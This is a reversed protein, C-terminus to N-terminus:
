GRRRALVRLYGSTQVTETYDTYLATASLGKVHIQNRDWKLAMSRTEVIAGTLAATIAGTLEVFPNPSTVGGTALAQAISGSPSGSITGSSPTLTGIAAVVLALSNSISVGLSSSLQSLSIEEVPQSGDQAQSVQVLVDIKDTGLWHNYVQESSQLGSATVARWEGLFDNGYARPRTATVTSTGDYDAEGIVLSNAPVVGTSIVFGLTVALPDSITYFIAAQDGVPFNGVIQLQFDSFTAPAIAGILYNGEDSSGLLALVDGVEVDQTTFNETSDTFITMNGLTDVSTAGYATGTSDNVTIVGSPQRTAYVYYTGAAGSINLTKTTRIRSLYGGIQMLLPQSSGNITVQAGTSGIYTPYGNSNALGSMLQNPFGFRMAAQGAALSASAGRAAWLELGINDLQQKLTYPTPSDAPNVYGYLYTNEAELIDPVPLLNGAADLSVALRAVLDTASGAANQLETQIVGIAGDIITFNGNVPVDWDNTFEGNGALILSLNATKTSM